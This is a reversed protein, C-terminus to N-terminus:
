TTRRSLYIMSGLNSYSYTEEFRKLFGAANENNTSIPSVYPARDSYEQMRDAGGEYWIDFACGPINGGRKNWVILFKM